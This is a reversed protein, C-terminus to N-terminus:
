LASFGERPTSGENMKVTQEALMEAFRAPFEDLEHAYLTIPEANLPTARKGGDETLILSPTFTGFLLVVEKRPEAPDTTYKEPATM